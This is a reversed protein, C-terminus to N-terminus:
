PSDWGIISVRRPDVAGLPAPDVLDLANPLPSGPPIESFCPTNLIWRTQQEIAVVTAQELRVRLDASVLRRTLSGPSVGLWAGTAECASDIEAAPKEAAMLCALLTEIDHRRSELVSTSAVLLLPKTPPTPTQLLVVDRGFGATLASLLPERACVADLEGSRLESAGEGADLFVVEVDEREIGESQLLLHLYSHPPGNRFTGIRRGVLDHPTLIGASRLSVVGSDDCASGISAIVRFGDTDFARVAVAFDSTLALDYEGGILADLSRAGCSTAIPDLYLGRRGPLDESIAVLALAALPENPIAFRLPPSDPESPPPAPVCATALLVALASMLGIRGICM